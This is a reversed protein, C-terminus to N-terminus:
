TAIFQAISLDAKPNEKSNPCHQYNGISVFVQVRFLATQFKTLLFLSLDLISGISLLATNRKLRCRIIWVLLHKTALLRHYFAPNPHITTSQAEISLEQFDGKNEKCHKNYNILIPAQPWTALHGLKSYGVKGLVPERTM